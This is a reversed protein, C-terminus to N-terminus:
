GVALWTALVSSKKLLAYRRPAEMRAAELRLAPMRGAGPFEAPVAATGGRRPKLFIPPARGGM